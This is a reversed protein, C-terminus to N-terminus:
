LMREMTPEHHEVALGTSGTMMVMVALSEPKKARLTMAYAVTPTEELLEVAMGLYQLLDQPHGRADRM